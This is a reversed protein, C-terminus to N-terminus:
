GKGQARSARSAKPVDTGGGCLPETNYHGKSGSHRSLSATLYSWATTVTLAQPRRM